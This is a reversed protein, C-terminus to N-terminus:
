QIAFTGNGGLSLKKAVISSGIINGNGNGTISVTAGAAYLAGQISLNGNGSISVGATVSRNQFWLVNQYTGSSPPSLTINGNGSLSFNGAESYIIVNNGM